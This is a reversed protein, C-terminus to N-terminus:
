EEDESDSKDERAQEAEIEDLMGQDRDRLQRGYAYLQHALSTLGDKTFSVKSKTLKEEPDFGLSEELATVLGDVMVIQDRLVTPDMPVKRERKEKKRERQPKPYDNHGIADYYDRPERDDRRRHDERRRNGQEGNLIRCYTNFWTGRLVSDMRSRHEQDMLHVQSEIAQYKQVFRRTDTKSTVKLYHYVCSCADRSVPKGQKRQNQAHDQAVIDWHDILYSQEAKSLFIGSM